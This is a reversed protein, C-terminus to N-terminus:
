KCNSLETNMPRQEQKGTEREQLAMMCLHVTQRGLSRNDRAADIKIREYLKRPFRVCIGISDQKDAQYVSERQM